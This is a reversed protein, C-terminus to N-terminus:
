TRWAVLGVSRIALWWWLGITSRGVPIGLWWWLLWAVMWAIWAVIGRALGRRRVRISRRWCPIVRILLRGL